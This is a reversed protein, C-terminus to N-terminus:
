ELLKQPKQSSKKWFKIYMAEVTKFRYNAKEM